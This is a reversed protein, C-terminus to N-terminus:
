HIVGGGAEAPQIDIERGGCAPCSMLETIKQLATAPPLFSIPSRWTRGCRLCMAEVEDVGSAALEAVTLKMGTPDTM